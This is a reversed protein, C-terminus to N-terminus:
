KTEDQDLNKKTWFVKMGTIIEISILKKYITKVKVSRISKVM